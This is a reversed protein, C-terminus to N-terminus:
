ELNQESKKKKVILTEAFMNEKKKKLAYNM